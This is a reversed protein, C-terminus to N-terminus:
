ERPWLLRVQWPAFELRQDPESIQQDTNVDRAAGIAPSGRLKLVRPRDSLNVVAACAKGSPTNGVRVYMDAAITGNMERATLRHVHEEFQALRREIKGILAETQGDAPRALPIVVSYRRRFRDDHDAQPVVDYRVQRSVL